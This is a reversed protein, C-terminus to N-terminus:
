KKRKAALADLEEEQRKLMENEKRLISNQTALAKKVETTAVM